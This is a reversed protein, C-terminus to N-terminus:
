KTSPAESAPAEIMVELDVREFDSAHSRKERVSVAVGELSGQCTVYTLNVPDWKEGPRPTGLPSPSREEVPQGMARCTDRAMRDLERRLGASRGGDRLHIAALNGDTLEFLARPFLRGRFKMGGRLVYGDEDNSQTFRRDVTLPRGFTFSGFHAAGSPAAAPLSAGALLLGLLLRSPTPVARAYRPSPAGGDAQGLPADEALV